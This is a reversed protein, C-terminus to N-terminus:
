DALALERGVSQWAPELADSSATMARYMKCSSPRPKTRVALTQLRHGLKKLGQRLVPGAILLRKEIGVSLVPVSRVSQNNM